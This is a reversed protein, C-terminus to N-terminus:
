LLDRLTKFQFGHILHFQIFQSLFKIFHSGSNLWRDPRCFINWSYHPKQFFLSRVDIAEWPHFYFVPLANLLSGIRYLYPGMPFRFVVNPFMTPFERLEPKLHWHSFKFYTLSSDYQFGLKKLAIFLSETVRLYPARYGLIPTDILEELLRKAQKLIKVKGSDIKQFSEHYYGHCGVEYKRGITRILDPFREAVEGTVFFTAPVSYKNLLQIIQPLGIELGKYSQLGCDNEIDFTLVIPHRPVKNV